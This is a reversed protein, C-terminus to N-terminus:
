TKSNQIQIGTYKNASVPVFQGTKIKIKNIKKDPMPEPISQKTSCSISIDTFAEYYNAKSSCRRLSLHKTLCLQFSYSNGSISNVSTYLLHSVSNRDILCSFGSQTINKKKLDDSYKTWQHGLCNTKLLAFVRQRKRKEDPHM